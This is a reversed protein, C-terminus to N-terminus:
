WLHWRQFALVDVAILANTVGHAVIADAIRGRRIMALGYMAGAVSGAFWRDGHMMGFLVSSVALALWSFRSLSVSEFDASFLRRYVFGRFALEEAIPVTLSAGLVRLALWTYRATEPAAM